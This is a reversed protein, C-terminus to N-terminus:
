RWSRRTRAGPKQGCRLGSERGKTFRGSGGRGESVLRFDVQKKFSDVKAVQVRVKDGLRIVRRGHRGILQNREMDFVYFDDELSSLHVLGSMALGPVDVFFGFNRVDIVLAPYPTPKPAQLQAKLFAYLKVDKSDREADASNRETDSIHDATEKLSHVPGHSKQFLARHVVLDAYRRIPSTFHTYKAKALGYHGLPEVAYRARMLSRLFGIKLAVGIPITDLKQLLKQVEQWKTLNGCPVHHSLVEERYEQLRREDPEEHVRYIAKVNQSMLRDAVAENALLMFEEILQHSVDNEVREISLIRGHEDLRIKMEPFDLDLSGAKFRLRRIRQALANADHLMQEIRDDPKRQLIALVEKYTFRRKSRIVAPYFRMKLVRGEDSVLFEVCKTLRDVNPKLSCLENSLAEPLMPIVRDVLYTSNGRRRAENDLTTGPKVYHSVDAIHVWLKWQGPSVRQLCIADDFDKADDPDITIVQHRRCDERGALEHPQISTRIARAEQLVNKPFHLPLSYQRLVSLMDVGEEDPSGLVEVIEGEQNTHRSEWEHLEVVVKDGVRAPRGVDRPPLVYVDHPMRPDDPIVYLFERGRQLTGVIQTRKRELIRIVAGTEQELREPRLGKAKVDRRVLVRDEHLATSTADEPIMIEKLEPDDPQLFGKGQRNIRIRGPVLDAERSQIYRNGKARTIRGSQELGRLIRQLEQQRHPPLRLHRLLEPVNAPVYDRRGLLRLIQEEMFEDRMGRFNEGHSHSFGFMNRARFVFSAFRVFANQWARKETLRKRHIEENL